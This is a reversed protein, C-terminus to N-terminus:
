LLHCLTHTHCFGVIVLVALVGCIFRFAVEMFKDIKMFDRTDYGHSDSLFVPSLYVADAGIKRIHDAWDALKRIRPASIGDNQYPADCFGIPYIQYFVSEYAWM